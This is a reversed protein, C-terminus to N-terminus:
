KLYNDIFKSYMKKIKKDVVIAVDVVPTKNKHFLEGEKIGSISTMWKPNMFINDKNKGYNIMFIIPLDDKLDYDPQNWSSSSDAFGLAVEIFISWSQVESSFTVKRNNWSLLMPESIGYYYNRLRKVFDGTIVEDPEGLSKLFKLPRASGRFFYTDNSYKPLDFIKPYDKKAKKIDINKFLESLNVGSAWEGDMKTYQTLKNIIDDLEISSIQENLNRVEEKIIRRFQSLKM